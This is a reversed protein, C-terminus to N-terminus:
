YASLARIWQISIWGSSVPPDKPRWYMNINDGDSIAELELPPKLDDQGIESHLVNTQEDQEEVVMPWYWRTHSNISINTENRMLQRALPGPINRIDFCVLFRCDYLVQVVPPQGNPLSEWEQIAEVLHKTVNVQLPNVTGRAAMNEEKM